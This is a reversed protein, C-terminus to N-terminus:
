YNILVYYGIGRKNSNQCTKCSWLHLKATLPAACILGWSPLLSKKGCDYRAYYTGGNVERLETENIKKM